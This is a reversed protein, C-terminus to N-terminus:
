IQRRESAPVAASQGSLSSSANLNAGEDIGVGLRDVLEGGLWATGLAIIVGIVSLIYAFVSPTNPSYSRIIWSIIFLVLVIANGIGHLQGISKARTGQPIAAWDIFGFIAALLGGIIGVTMTWFAVGSFYGTGTIWHIIDFILSTALLALPFVVLVPHAPHGFLKAKSEM